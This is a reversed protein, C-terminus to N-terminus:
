AARTRVNQMAVAAVVDNMAVVAVVKNRGARADACQEAVGAIVREVGESGKALVAGSGIAAASVVYGIRRPGRVDVDGRPGAAVPDREKIAVRAVLDGYGVKRDTEATVDEVEAHHQGDGQGAPGRAGI